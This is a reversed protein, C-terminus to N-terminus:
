DNGYKFQDDLRIDTSSNSAHRKFVETQILRTCL